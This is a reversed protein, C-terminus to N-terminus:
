EKAEGAPEAGGGRRELEEFRTSLRHAEARDALALGRKILHANLFTRNRLYVYYLRRGSSDTREGDERLFVRTGRVRESLFRVAEAERGERSRVGLLGVERGDALLLATPSLVRRVPILEVREPTREGFRMGCSRLRPDARRRLGLPDHFVYPLKRIEGEIDLALPKQRVLELRADFSGLSGRLRRLTHLIYAENLEYGISSRGLNLAALSTTGSGLFPDLVTEGEFTFMRILRRPLEEPFPALHGACKERSNPGSSGGRGGGPPGRKEGPFSWHGSFYESWEAASLASRRRAEPPPAPARGPKKFILVFEYDLKLIGNRPYPYSGMVSGGGTTNCTTVKRWIVAGMYDLGATEFFKIIETRIPVVKYRGYDATRTFQDGVNICARCGPHLARVCESWVIGLNNIYEEYSDHFGIQRPDGYDKLQWYPPSTVVIHVSEDEVADM